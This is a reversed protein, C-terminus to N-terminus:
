DDQNDDRLADTLFATAVDTVASASLDDALKRCIIAFAVPGDTAALLTSYLGRYLLATLPYIADADTEAILVTADDHENRGMLKMLEAVREAATATASANNM